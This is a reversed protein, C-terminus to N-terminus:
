LTGEKSFHGRRPTVDWSVANRMTVATFVEFGAIGRMREWEVSENIENL